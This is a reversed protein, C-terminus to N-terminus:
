DPLTEPLEIWIFSSEEGVIAPRVRGERRCAEFFDKSVFAEAALKAKGCDPFREVAARLRARRHGEGDRRWGEASKYIEGSAALEAMVANVNTARARVSARIKETSSFPGESDILLLVERQLEDLTRKDEKDAPEGKEGEGSPEYRRLGDDTLELHIPFVKKQGSKVCTLKAKHSGNEDEVTELKFLTDVTAKFASTGRIDGAKNAHHLFLITAKTTETFWGAYTLPDAANRDNEDIGPTAGALTDIVVFKIEQSLVLKELRTWWEKEAINGPAYVYGLDRRNQSGTLMHIRRHFEYNGDEFDVYLCRGQTVRREGLWPLGASVCAAIDIATWSKITGPEAYIMSVKQEVLLNDVLYNPPRPTDDWGGWQVKFGFTDADGAPTDKPDALRTPEVELLLALGEEEEALLPANRPRTSTTKASHSKHLVREELEDGWPPDCREDYHEAILELVDESPLALDYAGKQVVKFLTEDGGQGAVCVPAEAALWNGYIERRRAREPGAVDEPHPQVPERAPQKRFWELLWGPAPAPARDDVVAYATGSAHPSGPGVVFGGDGRIDIKKGLAGSSNGVYFGPHEFYLHLGRGTSVTYTDAGSGLELWADVAEPGDLDVVLLGSGRPRAGTKIGYGRRGLHDPEPMPVEGGEEVEKWLVAPHKGVRSCATGKACTCAGDKSIPLLPFVVPCDLPMVLYTACDADLGFM